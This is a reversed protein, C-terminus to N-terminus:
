RTIWEDPVSPCTRRLDRRLGDKTLFLAAIFEPVFPGREGETEGERGYERFFVVWSRVVVVVGELYVGVFYM